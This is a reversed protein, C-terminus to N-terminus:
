ATYVEIGLVRCADRAEDDIFPTIFMIKSIERGVKMRYLEAKRKLVFPDSRKVHSTVELLIVKGDSMVVDLQVNSPYGYVYGEYDHTNWEEITYGLEKGVIGKLAERVSQETEIGWRSGLASIKTDLRRFGEQMDRRMDEISKWVRAFEEDHRRFGEQMDRRLNNTEERLSKIEEDHRRFGEQMDERLSKIEELISNFKNDHEELKDRIRIQSEALLAVAEELRKLSSRIDDLGILGAVAYRFEKDTELLHLLTEKLEKAQM